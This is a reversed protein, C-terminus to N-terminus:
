TQKPPPLLWQPHIMCCTRCLLASCWSTIIHTMKLLITDDWYIHEIDDTRRSCANQQIYIATVSSRVIHIYHWATCIFFNYTLYRCLHFIDMIMPLLNGSFVACYGVVTCNEDVTHCFGSNVSLFFFLQLHLLSITASYLPLRDHSLCLAQLWIVCFQLTLTLILKTVAEWKSYDM